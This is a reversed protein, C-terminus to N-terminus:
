EGSAHEMHSSWNYWTLGKRLGEKGDLLNSSSEMNADILKQPHTASVALLTAPTENRNGVEQKMGRHHEWCQSM